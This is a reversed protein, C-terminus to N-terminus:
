KKSNPFLLLSANDMFMSHTSASGKRRSVNFRRTFHPEQRNQSLVLNWILSIDTIKSMFNFANCLHNKLSENVRESLQYDLNDFKCTFKAEIEYVMEYYFRLLISGIYIRDILDITIDDHIMM